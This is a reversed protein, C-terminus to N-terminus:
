HLLQTDGQRAREQEYGARQPPLPSWQNVTMMRRM